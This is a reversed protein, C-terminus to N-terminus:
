GDSRTSNMSRPWARSAHRSSKPRESPLLAVRPTFYARQWRRRPTSAGIGGQPPPQRDPSTQTLQPLCPKPRLFVALHCGPDLGASACPYLDSPEGLNEDRLGPRIPAHGSVNYMHIGMSQAFSIIATHSPSVFTGGVEVVNDAAVDFTKKTPLYNRTRGGVHGAAELVLVSLGASVLKHAATLGAYGAGIIIADHTSSSARGGQVDLDPGGDSSTTACSALLVALM